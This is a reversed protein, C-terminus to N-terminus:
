CPCAHCLSMVMAGAVSTMPGFTTANAGAWLRSATPSVLPSALAVIALRHYDCGQRSGVRPKVVLPHCACVTIAPWAMAMQSPWRSALANRPMVRARSSAMPLLGAMAQDRRWCRGCVCHGHVRASVYCSTIHVCKLAFCFSSVIM